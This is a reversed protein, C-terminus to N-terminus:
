KFTLQKIKRPLKIDPGTLVGNANTDCIEVYPVDLIFPLQPFLTPGTLQRGYELTAWQLSPLGKEYQEIEHRPYKKNHGGRRLMWFETGQGVDRVHTKVEHFIFTAVRVAQAESYNSHWLRDAWYNALDEGIGACVFKTEPMPVLDHTVWLARQMGNTSAYGVILNISHDHRIDPWIYKKHVTKLVGTILDQMQHENYQAIKSPALSWLRGIANEIVAASGAGTIVLSWGDTARYALKSIQRSSAATVEEMDACMLLGDRCQFGAVLTMREPM